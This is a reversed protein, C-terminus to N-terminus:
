GFSNLNLDQLSVQIEMNVAAYSVIALIHFCGLHEGISSHICFTYHM